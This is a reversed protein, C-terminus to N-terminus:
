RHGLGGRPLSCPIAAPCWEWSASRRASRRSRPHWTPSQGERGGPFRKKEVLRDVIPKACLGPVAANGFHEIRRVLDAPLCSLLHTREQEFMEPWRPDHPIIAVDEKAARAIKEELTEM